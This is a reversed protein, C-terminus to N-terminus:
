MLHEDESISYIGPQTEGYGRRSLIDKINNLFDAQQNVFEGRAANRIKMKLVVPSPKVPDSLALLSM